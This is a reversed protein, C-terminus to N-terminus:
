AMRPLLRWLGVPPAFPLAELGRPAVRVKLRQGDLLAAPVRAEFLYSGNGYPHRSWLRGLSAQAPLDDAVADARVLHVEVDAPLLRGLHVRALVAGTGAGAAPPEVSVAELRVEAWADAAPPRPTPAQLLAAFPLRDVLSPAGLPAPRASSM